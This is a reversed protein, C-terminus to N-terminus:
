RLPRRLSSRHGGLGLGDPCSALEQEEALLLQPEGLVQEEEAVAVEGGPGVLDELLEAHAPGVVAHQM